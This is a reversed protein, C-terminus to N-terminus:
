SLMHCYYNEPKIDGGSGFTGEKQWINRGEATYAVLIGAIFFYLPMHFQYIFSIVAHVAAPYDTHLPHSHGFVVLLVALGYLITIFDVHERKDM